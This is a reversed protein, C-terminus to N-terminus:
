TKKTKTAIVLSNIIDCKIYKKVIANAPTMENKL